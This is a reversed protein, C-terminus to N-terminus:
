GLEFFRMLEVDPVKGRFELEQSERTACFGEVFNDGLWSRALKSTKFNQISDSINRIYNPGISVGPVYANGSTGKTPDIKEEIGSIGAALTAAVTLYPNTDSGPLRNEFRISNKSKGVVRFCASRNDMGWNLAPPAFTGDVFRRYSNVTPAFILMFEGLYKQLGGLFYKFSGSMHDKNKEDWFVPEGNKDLLSMHLHSSQSDAAESWRPMFSATKGKRMALARLFNKLLVADDASRLGMGPGTCVEMFGPGIEEHMKILDIELSKCMDSVEAYWDSQFTQYLILDHSAHMTTPQLDRYGKAKLSAPTEDFLTYELELGYKPMFGLQEVRSLVKSLIGRPCLVEADSSYQSLFILDHGNKEWPIKRVSTKDLVLPADHFDATEDTVGPLNLILDTPDLALTAPAMGMGNELTEELLKRSVKQGRLLGNTDTMAVTAFDCQNSDLLKKM